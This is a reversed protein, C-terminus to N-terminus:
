KVEEKEQKVGMEFCPVKVTCDIRGDPYKIEESEVKIVPVEQGNFDKFKDVKFLKGKIEIYKDGDM